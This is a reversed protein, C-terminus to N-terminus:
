ASAVAKALFRNLNQIARCFRQELQHFNERQYTSRVVIVLDVPRDFQTQHARFLERFIRRARNRVVANGVKRSTIIGIRSSDGTERPSAQFIFAGCHIRNGTQRVREFDSRNRLRQNSFFRM